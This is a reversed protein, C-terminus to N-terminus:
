KRFESIMLTNYLKRNLRHDNLFLCYLTVDQGTKIEQYMHKELMKEIPMWVEIGELNFLFEKKILGDLQTPKPLYGPFAWCVIKMSQMVAPDIPREKGM